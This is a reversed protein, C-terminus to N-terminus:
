NAQNAQEAAAAQRARTAKLADVAEQLKNIYARLESVEAGLAPEGFESPDVDPGADAGLASAQDSASQEAELRNINDFLADVDAEARAVDDEAIVRSHSLVQIESDLSDIDERLLLVEHEIDLAQSQRNKLVSGLKAGDDIEEQYRGQEHKLAAREDAVRREYTGSGLGVLGGFFGGQRPDDSVCATLLLATSIALFSRANEIM